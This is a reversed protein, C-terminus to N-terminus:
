KCPSFLLGCNLFSSSSKGYSVPVKCHCLANVQLWGSLGCWVYVWLLINTYNVPASGPNQKPPPATTEQEVEVGIFWM